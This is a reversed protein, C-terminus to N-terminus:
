GDRKRWSEIEREIAEAVYGRVLEGLQHNITEILEASARDVIPRLRAGLQERLATDTFLDLRQLVQMRIEEAMANWDVSGRKVPPPEAVAHPPAGAHQAVFTEAGPPPIDLIFEEEVVPAAGREATLAESAVAAGSAAPREHVTRESAVAAGSAAPREHATRESAVAAGAGAPREDTTRERVVGADSASPREGTAREAPAAPSAIEVGRAALRVPTSESTRPEADAGTRAVAEGADTNAPVRADLAEADEALARVDLADANAALADAELAADLVGPPAHPATGSGKVAADHSPWVDVVDTLVPVDSLTDLPMPDAQAAPELVIPDANAPPTEPLIITPALTKRDIGLADTLTPPGGHKGKGRKRNRRMLADAQELLERATPM